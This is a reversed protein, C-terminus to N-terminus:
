WKVEMICPGLYSSVNNLIQNRSKQKGMELIESSIVGKKYTIVGKFDLIMSLFITSLKKRWGRVTKWIIWHDMSYILLRLKKPFFFRVCVVCLSSWYRHSEHNENFFMRSELVTFGKVLLTQNKWKFSSAFSLMLAHQYISTEKQELNLHSLLKRGIFLSATQQM